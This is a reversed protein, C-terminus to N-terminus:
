QKSKYSYMNVYKRCHPCPYRPVDAKHSLQHRLLDAMRTSESGCDPYKCTYAAHMTASGHRDLDPQWDFMLGCQACGYKRIHMRNHDVGTRIIYHCDNVRQGCYPAPCRLSKHDTAYSHRALESFTQFKMGCGDHDCRLPLHGTARSRTCYINFTRFNLLQESTDLPSDCTACIEGPYIAIHPVNM